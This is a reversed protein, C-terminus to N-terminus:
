LTRNRTHHDLPTHLPALDILSPQRWLISATHISPIPALPRPSETTERQAIEHSLGYVSFGLGYIPTEMKKEMIGLVIGM